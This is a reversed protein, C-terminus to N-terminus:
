GYRFRIVSQGIKGPSGPCNNYDDEEDFDIVEDVESEDADSDEKDPLVAGDIITAINQLYEADTSLTSIVQMM